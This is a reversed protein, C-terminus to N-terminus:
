QSRGQRGTSRDTHLGMCGGMYPQGPLLTNKVVITGCEVTYALPGQRQDRPHIHGSNVSHIYVVQRWGDWSHPMPKGLIKYYIWHTVVNYAM